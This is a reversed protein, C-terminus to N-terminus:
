GVEEKLFETTEKTEPIYADKSVLFNMVYIRTPRGMRQRVRQILGISKETDLEALLRVAKNYRCNMLEQIEILTFYIFILDQAGKRNNSISLSMRDLM